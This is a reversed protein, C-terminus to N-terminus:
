SNPFIYFTRSTFVKLVVDIMQINKGKMEGGHLKRLYRVYRPILIRDPALSVCLKVCM